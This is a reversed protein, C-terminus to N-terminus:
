ASRRGHQEAFVLITALEEPSANKTSVTVSGHRGLAVEAVQKSRSLCGWRRPAIPTFLMYTM